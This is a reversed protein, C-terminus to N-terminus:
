QITGKKIVIELNCRRNDLPDGNKHRVEERSTLKRGIVREMIDDEMYITEGTSEDVRYVHGKREQNKM